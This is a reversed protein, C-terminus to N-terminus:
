IRLRNYGRQAYAPHKTITRQVKEWNKGTWPAAAVAEVEIGPGPLHHITQPFPLGLM